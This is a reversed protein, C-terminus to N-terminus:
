EKIIKNDNRNKVTISLLVFILIFFNDFNSMRIISDAFSNIYFMSFFVLGIYFFDKEKEYLKKLLVIISVLFLMYGFIGFKAIYEFYHNHYHTIWGKIEEKHEKKFVELEVIADGIGAGFILNRPILESAAKWMFLRPGWSGIYEGNQYSYILENVGKLYRDIKNSTYLFSISLILVLVSTILTKKYRFLYQKYYIMLIFLTGLFSLQSMRGNNVLMTFFSIIAIILFLYKIKKNNEKFFFYLSLFLNFAMYFTVVAYPLIGKPDNKNSISDKLEITFLGQYISLSFLAYVGFSLTITYFAMKVDEKNFVTFLVLIIMPYYKYYQLEKIGIKINDSWLLSLCAYLIFLFLMLLPLNTFVEKAKLFYGRKKAIFLWWIFLIITMNGFFGSFFNWPLFFVYIFMYIKFYDQKIGRFYDIM